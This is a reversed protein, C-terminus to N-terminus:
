RSGRPRGRVRAGSYATTISLRAHGAERAITERAREDRKRDKVVGGRVPSPMGAVEEYRDNLYEARLGHATVGLDRKTLHYKRMMYKFREIQQELTRTPPVLNAQQRAGVLRKARELVERQYPTRIPVTRELGGKTGHKVLLLTGSDMRHPRGCIAEKRRLGFAHQMELSAAVWPDERRIHEIQAVPDVQNTTWSKDHQAAYTRKLSEPKLGLSEASPVFGPKGLADCFWRLVSLREAITGAALEQREWDLVVAKLHKRQLNMVSAPKFGLRRVDRMFAHAILARNERTKYSVPKERRAHRLGFADIIVQVQRQVDLRAFPRGYRNRGRWEPTSIIDHYKVLFLGKEWRPPIVSWVCRRGCTGAAREVCECSSALDNFLLSREM